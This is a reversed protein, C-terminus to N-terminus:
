VGVVGTVFLACRLSRLMSIGAFVERMVKGTEQQTGNTAEGCGVQVSDMRLQVCKM